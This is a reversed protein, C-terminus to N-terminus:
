IKKAKSQKTVETVGTVHVNPQRIDKLEGINKKKKGGEARGKDGEKRRKERGEQLEKGGERRGERTKGEIRGQYQSENQITNKAIDKLECIKKDAIDLKNNIRFMKTRM